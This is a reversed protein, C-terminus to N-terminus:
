FNLYRWDRPSLKLLTKYFLEIVNEVDDIHCMETTSHMYKLPSAVICTVSGQQFFSMTDNGTTGASIQYKINNEDSVDRIFDILKTHNQFSYEIVPGLGCKTDGEKIKSITPTNTHHTVDHVVCLDLNLNKALAASGHLGTEETTSNCIYLDYPLVINNEKLKRAVQTLIYGGIKNDLSKGLYYEGLISFTEEFTVINGIEVGIEKIKENTDYGLDIFLNEVKLSKEDATNRTHIAPMGFVGSIKGNKRTHVLIKKSPAIVADSGGNRKVYILGDSIHTIRWSIEDAHAEIGIKYDSTGKIVAYVNGYNDSHIEDVFDKIYDSWVLQGEMEQSVPSYANVYKELFELNDM